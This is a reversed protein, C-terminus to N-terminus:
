FVPVNEIKMEKDALPIYTNTGHEQAECVIYFTFINHFLQSTIHNDNKKKEAGTKLEYRMKEDSNKKLEPYGQPFASLRNTQPM